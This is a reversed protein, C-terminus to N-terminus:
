IRSNNPSYRDLFLDFFLFSASMDTGELSPCKGVNGNNGIANELKLKSDSTNPIKCGALFNCSGHLNLKIEV